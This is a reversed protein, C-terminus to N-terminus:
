EIIDIFIHCVPKSSYPLVAPALTEFSVPEKRRRAFRIPSSETTGCWVHLVLTAEWKGSARRLNSVREHSLCEWPWLGSETKAEICSEQGSRRATLVANLGDLGLLMTILQIRPYVDDHRKIMRAIYRWLWPDASGVTEEKCRIGTESGNM